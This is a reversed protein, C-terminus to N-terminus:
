FSALLQPYPDPEAGADIINSLGEQPPNRLVRCSQCALVLSERRVRITSSLRAHHEDVGSDLFPPLQLGETRGNYEFFRMGSVATHAVSQAEYDADLRREM